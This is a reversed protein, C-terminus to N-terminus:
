KARTIFRIYYLCGLLCAIQITTLGFSFRWGPKIFDLLFRFVLYCVMFLKFKNGSTFIIKKERWKIWFLLVLLFAIEYLAVPHRLMGDGLDMGLFFTTEVGYTAEYVGNTFCGVRGIAMAIILPEVFLDGTSKKEGIFYKVLEVGILGGLLGGVITKNAFFYIFLNESEFFAIPNELAGIIRSFFFAGFAAGIFVWVRNEDSIHDNQKKRLFVFYRYGVAMGLLEFVLHLDVRVPGIAVDIPFTM